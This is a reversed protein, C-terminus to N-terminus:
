AEVPELRVVTNFISTGVGILDTLDTLSVDMLNPDVKMVLNSCLGTACGRDGESAMHDSLEEVYVIPLRYIRQPDPYGQNPLDFKRIGSRVRDDM